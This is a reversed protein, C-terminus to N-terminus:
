DQPRHRHRERTALTYLGSVILFAAIVPVGLIFISFALGTALSVVRDLLFCLVIGGLMWYAAGKTLTFISDNFALTQARNLSKYEPRARGEIYLVKM